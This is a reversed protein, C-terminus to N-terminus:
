NVSEHPKETTQRSILWEIDSPKARAAPGKSLQLSGPQHSAPNNISKITQQSTPNKSNPKQKGQKRRQGKHQSAPEGINKKWTNTQFVKSKQFPHPATGKPAGFQLKVSSNCGNEIPHPTNQCRPSVRPPWPLLLFSVHLNTNQNENNRARNRCGMEITKQSHLNLNHKQEPENGPWTKQMSKQNPIQVSWAAFVM